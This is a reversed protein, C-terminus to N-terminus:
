DNGCVYRRYIKLDRLWLRTDWRVEPMTKDPTYIGGTNSTGTKFLRWVIGYDRKLVIFRYKYTASATFFIKQRDGGWGTQIYEDTKRQIPWGASVLNTEAQDLTSSKCHTFKAWQQPTTKNHACGVFVLCLIIFAFLKNM